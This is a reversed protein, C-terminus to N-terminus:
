HYIKVHTVNENQVDIESVQIGVATDIWNDTDATVVAGNPVSLTYNTIYGCARSLFIEQTEYNFTIIDENGTQNGMDDIAYDSIFRYETSTEQTRLPISITNVSQEQSQIPDVINGDEDINPNVAEVWLDTVDKPTDTGSTNNIEFFEIVLLPTTITGEVCIDDKECSFSLFATTILLILIGVFSLKKM